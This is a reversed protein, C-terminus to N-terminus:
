GAQRDQMEALTALVDAEDVGHVVEVGKPATWCSPSITADGEQRPGHVLGAAGPEVGDPLLAPLDFGGVVRGTCRRGSREDIRGLRRALLAAYVLGVAVAEGHRLDLESEPSSPPRRWPTPWPTATTSSWAGTARGSTRRWWTPRSGSAGPWRSPWPCSSSRRTPVGAVPGRAPGGGLFAYKAMEGRGSAWERPPLTSLLDTDCIM